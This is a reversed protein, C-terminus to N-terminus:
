DVCFYIMRLVHLFHVKLIILTIWLQLSDKGRGAQIGLLAMDDVLQDWHQNFTILIEDYANQREKLERTKDEVEHLAQKQIETEQVLQQNQLQLVGADATKSNPSHNTSNRSVRSSVPTLLHLRKKEPEDDHDSNEM